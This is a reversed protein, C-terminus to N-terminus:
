CLFLKVLLPRLNTVKHNNLDDVIFCLTRSFCLFSRRISYIEKFICTDTSSGLPYNTNQCTDFYSSKTELRLTFSSLHECSSAKIIWCSPISWHFDVTVPLQYTLPFYPRPSILLFSSLSPPSTFFVPFYWIQDLCILNQFCQFKLLQWHWCNQCTM